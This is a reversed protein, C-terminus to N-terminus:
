RGRERDRQTEVANMLALFAMLALYAGITLAIDHALLFQIM